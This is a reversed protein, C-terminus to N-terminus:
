FPQWTNPIRLYHSNVRLFLGVAYSLLTLSLGWWHERQVSSLLSVQYTLQMWRTLLYWILSALVPLGTSPCFGSSDHLAPFLIFHIWGFDRNYILPSGVHCTCIPFVSIHLFAISHKCVRTTQGGYQFVAARLPWKAKRFRLKKTQLPLIISLKWAAAFCTKREKENTATLNFGPDWAEHLLASSYRLGLNQRKILTNDEFIFHHEPFM